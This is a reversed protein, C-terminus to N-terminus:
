KKSKTVNKTKESIFHKCVNSDVSIFLMNHQRQPLIHQKFVILDEITEVKNHNQSNCSKKLRAPKFKAIYMTFIEEISCLIDETNFCQILNVVNEIDCPFPLGQFGSSILIM